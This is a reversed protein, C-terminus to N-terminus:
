FSGVRARDEPSTTLVTLNHEPLPSNTIKFPVNAMPNSSAAETLFNQAGSTVSLLDEEVASANPVTVVSSGMRPFDDKLDLFINGLSGVRTAKGGKVKQRVCMYSISNVAEWLEYWSSVSSAPTTSDVKVSCRADVSRLFFPLRWQAELGRQGFVVPDKDARMDGFINVCSRWPPGPTRSTDCRVNPNYSAIAIELNNDGGPNSAIGGYGSRVVCAEFLTYAAQGLETSSMHGSMKGPKLLVQIFCVGDISQLRYPLPVQYPVRSGRQGYTIQDDALVILNLIGRCSRVRLNHGYGYPDCTITLTNESLSGNLSSNGPYGLQPTLIPEASLGNKRLSPQPLTAALKTSIFICLSTLRAILM